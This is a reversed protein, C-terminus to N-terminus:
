NSLNFTAVDILFVYSNCSLNLLVFSISNIIKETLEKEKRERELCDCGKMKMVAALEKM